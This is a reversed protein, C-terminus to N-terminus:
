RLERAARACGPCSIRPINPYSPPITEETIPYPACYAFPPGIGDIPYIALHILIVPVGQHHPPPRDSTTM